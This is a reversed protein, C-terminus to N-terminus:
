IHLDVFRSSHWVMAGSAVSRRGRRFEDKLILLGLSRDKQDVHPSNSDDGNLSSWINGM